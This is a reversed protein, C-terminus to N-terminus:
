SASARAARRAAVPVVRRPPGACVRRAVAVFAEAAPSLGRERHWALEISRTPFDGSLEVATVREDSPDFCLRPVLAAGFGAAVMGHVTGNDDSRFVVNPEFAQSRLYAFV